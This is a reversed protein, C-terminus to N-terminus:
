HAEDWNKGAAIEVKLPVKLKIVEEMEKKVLAMVEAKEGVPAEVVLEDHVQMILRADLNNQTLLYDINVMAVKILDAASGQIPANIAMREAFQRVSPIASKLEPLYRRRNLLTCVFGDRRAGELIGDLYARVKQYRAFYGDIYAQAMKQPVGLEKALGFASMGYLIGFNIVKAQRRMDPSVMQPFVGFVDSATRTHIDEEANFAELLTEDECLHALVRLEIQSYDASILVSGPDAIFAQRIRKGELTRIPINQLNPNSSSLRGTAAVTQNYSTHIRGTQPNILAPLADVYTSKLKSLSRYALIEAPLEHSRALETLVDVDTSYGEKTKKGKPLKLKEFLIAQLQKPSNINFKEGSLRHIKEESLSLLQGLEESMQKLLATDVLVGKKEMAALAYLLPMEVDRYLTTAGAEEVKEALARALPAIADVRQGAYAAMRDVPVLALPYTKGKGGAVDNPAPVREHLYEWAMEDLEYSQRAPNLLYAALQLDDGSKIELNALTVLATKLDYVQKKIEARTFVPALHALVDKATLQMKANTHGLPIYFVDGGAGLSLGILEQPPNKEWIIECAIEASEQLRAALESLKAAETVIACEKAPKAANTKIQQLLSSFEFESFLRTLLEKDPEKRAADQLDFDIDVDTRILALQRSLRAQEAHQRFSERLKVNHLKEANAIVAEVSGYEEILRRATKPGIGPVGPINDSTDGMLGLIEVVQDPGVGFKEKVAAADYTKDKMSDIMTVCDGVLQMLDKDGSILATRWGKACARVTLTGILDDAEIGQKELLCVSFGRIVEKIFPVQPILDDPMPKRTAKYDEFEGHRTTPGKLDFTVVIYDPQLDRLLKMLMTTFGYIANTPFGKSNTLAPIGYYARYLYNSGDVLALLPKKNQETM